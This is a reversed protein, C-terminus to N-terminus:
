TRNTLNVYRTIQLLIIVIFSFFTPIRVAFVFVKPFSAVTTWEREIFKRSVCFIVTKIDELRISSARLPLMFNRLGAGRTVTASPAGLIFIIHNTLNYERM